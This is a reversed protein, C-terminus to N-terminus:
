APSDQKCLLDEVEPLVEVRVAPDASALSLTTFVGRVVDAFQQPSSFVALVNTSSGEKKPPADKGFMKLATEATALAVKDDKSDMCRMVVSVAMPILHPEQASIYDVSGNAALQFTKQEM